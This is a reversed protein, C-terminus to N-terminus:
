EVCRNGNPPEGKSNSERTKKSRFYHRACAFLAVVCAAKLVLLGPPRWWAGTHVEILDSVAFLAFGVAASGRIRRLAPQTRRLGVALCAAFVGWLAAECYNFVVDWPWDAIPNM